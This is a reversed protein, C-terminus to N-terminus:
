SVLAAKGGIAMKQDLRRRLRVLALISRGSVGFPHHLPKAILLGGTSDLAGFKGPLQTM